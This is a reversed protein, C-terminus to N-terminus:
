LRRARRGGGARGARRAPSLPASPTALEVLVQFPEFPPSASSSRPFTFLTAVASPVGRLEITASSARASPSAPSKKEEGEEPLRHSEKLAMGAKEREESDRIGLGKSARIPM